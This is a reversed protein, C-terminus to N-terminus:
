AASEDAASYRDLMQILENMGDAAQQVPNGVWGAGPTDAVRKLASNIANRRRSEWHFLDGAKVIFDGGLGRLAACIEEDSANIQEAISKLEEALQLLRAELKGETRPRILKMLSECHARREATAVADARAARTADLEKNLKALLRQAEMNQRLATTISSSLQELRGAAKRDSAGQITAACHEDELKDVEALRAACATQIRAIASETLEIQQDFEALTTM